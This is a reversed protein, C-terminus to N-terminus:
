YVDFDGRRDKLYDDFKKGALLWKGQAAYSKALELSADSDDHDSERLANALRQTLQEIMLMADSSGNEIPHGGALSNITIGVSDLQQRLEDNKARLEAENREAWRVTRDREEIANKKGEEIADARSREAQRAFAALSIIAGLGATTSMINILTLYSQIKQVLNEMVAM